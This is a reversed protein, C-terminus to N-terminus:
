QMKVTGSYGKIDQGSIGQSQVKVMVNHVTGGRLLAKTTYKVVYIQHLQQSILNYLNVLDASNPVHYYRGGTDWAIQRMVNENITNGLGIMYVPIGAMKIKEMMTEYKIKSKNEIGDTLVIVAKRGSEKVVEDTSAVVADYLATEGGALLSEVLSKLPPKSSSFTGIRVDNSFGVILAKDDPHMLDIFKTAASIATEMKGEEKMSGSKDVTLVVSIPTPQGGGVLAISSVSNINQIVGDESVSFNDKTLGPLPRDAEDTVVVYCIVDPYYSADIQNITVKMSTTAAKDIVEVEYSLVPFGQQDTIMSVDPTKIIGRQKAPVTVTARVYVRLKGVINPMVKLKFRRADQSKWPEQWAEVLVYKSSISKKEVNSWIQSGTPYVTAKTTDSYIISVLPNDPFSISIGGAKADGGANKVVVDVYVPQGTVIDKPIDVSAIEARPNEQTLGPQCFAAIFVFIILIEYTINMM